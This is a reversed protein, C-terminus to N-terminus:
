ARPKDSTQIPFGQSAFARRITAVTEDIPVSVDDAFPYLGNYLERALALACFLMREALRLEEPSLVDPTRAAEDEEAWAAHREAYGPVLECFMMHEYCRYHPSAGRLLLGLGERFDPASRLVEIRPLRESTRGRRENRIIEEAHRELEAELAPTFAFRAFITKHSM